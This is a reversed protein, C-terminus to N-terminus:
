LDQQTDLGTILDTRVDETTVLPDPKGVDSFRVETRPYSPTNDVPDHVPRDYITTVTSWRGQADQHRSTTLYGADRLEILATRVAHRGDPAERALRAASTRWHDPKSLLYVLLGRAKWTLRHNTLIANDVVTFSQNPRPGRIITM